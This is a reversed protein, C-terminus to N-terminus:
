PSSAETLDLHQIIMFDWLAKRRTYYKKSVTFTDQYRIFIQEIPKTFGM